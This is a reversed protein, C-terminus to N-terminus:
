VKNRKKWDAFLAAFAKPQEKELTALMEPDEEQLQEFTKGQVTTKGGNTEAKLSDSLRAAPAIGDLMRCGGEYDDTLKREWDARVDAKIVKDAVAKDLRAKVKAALENKEKEKATREVDELREAAKKNADIRARIEEETSGESMGLVVAMAKLDMNEEKTNILLEIDEPCGCAAIMRATARDIKALEKVSTVFGASVAEAATMWWDTKWKAELVTMDKAHAKYKELYEAEVNSLLKHYALIDEATGYACGSPRHIMFQGNAPMVFTKCHMAIYTYASAVLAGGEGTIEGTFSSLINVIEAADFCSGGPGNLYLHVDTVGAAILMDVERRFCSADVDWGIEGTLRILAKSPTKKEAVIKFPIKEM